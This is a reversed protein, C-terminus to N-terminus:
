VVHLEIYCRCNQGLYTDVDVCQLVSCCLAVCQLVSCCVAVCQLVSCCAAVRQLVICCVVVCQLVQLELWPMYGCCCVQFAAVCRLVSCCVSFCQLVSCCVAVCQLLSCSQGHRTDMQVCKLRQLVSSCVAVYQLEPRTIYRSGHCQSCLLEREGSCCVAVCQLVSCCVAVCQLLAVGAVRATYHIWKWSVALV